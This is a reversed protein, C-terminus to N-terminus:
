VKAVGCLKQLVFVPIFALFGSYQIIRFTRVQFANVGSGFSCVNTKTFAVFWIVAGEKSMLTGVDRRLRAPLCAHGSGDYIASILRGQCYYTNIFCQSVGHLYTVGWEEEVRPRLEDKSNLIGRGKWM